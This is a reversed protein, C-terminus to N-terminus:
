PTEEKDANKERRVRCHDAAMALLGLIAGILIAHVASFRTFALAAFSLAALICAFPGRCIKRALKIASLLILACVVSRVGLFARNLWPVDQFRALLGALLIIALFPPLLAGGVAALAGSVGNIRYGLLIGMNAAIIGPMSQMAAVTDVMDDDTLWHRKEVFERTLLPLMALGGGLTLGSIAFMIRFLELNRRLDRPTEPM